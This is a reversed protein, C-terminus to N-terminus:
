VVGSRAKWDALRSKFKDVVVKWDNIRRMNEGIPLGLYMFPFEGIGCGMWRAMDSLEKDEVGIGYLKSKNYNVRLRSVEEFCKLICMLSKANDKNWEGFFITDDAYQLHSVAVKNEGVKVGFGMRRMINLLFKWNISDYAKEFDVKFILGRERRKKLFEMTENAILVGDLIYRGKIFANQVDGVVNGVVKKIREALIKSRGRYGKVHQPGLVGVHGAKMLDTKYYGLSEEGTVGHIGELLAKLKIGERACISEEDEWRKRAELWKGREADNLTRKEAELEWKMADVKYRDIKAKHDGFREKSWTKLSNKVNKLRDRFLCDPRTGKFSGKEGLKIRLSWLKRDLAIVSLNDWQDIFEENMLFRDLKSFKMGDDSVRTFKRGGMPIEVLRAENIFDNFDTMEKINVQSNLRDENKRVVNLDGFLCWTGRWRSMLGALRDWLSAKQRTVHPGYICVLFIDEVKGRWEGKVAIFRDDGIVEKCTFVRTDWIVLIGGSNGVAPLQSYGYGNGGWVDEVWSDDVLNCKTEQLGVIDPQESKIIAKVWGKKGVERGEVDGGETEKERRTGEVQAGEEALAWSVRIIEGVEKMEEISINCRKSNVEEEAAYGFRFVGNSDSIEEYFEKYADSIGKKNEWLGEVGTKRAIKKAKKVSRRGMKKKINEGTESGLGQNFGVNEKGGEFEEENTKKWKKKLRSGESGVSSTPSVERKERRCAPSGQEVEKEEEGSNLGTDEGEGQQMDLNCGACKKNGNENVGGENNIEEMDNGIIKAHRVITDEAMKEKPWVAEGNFTESVKTEEGVPNCDGHEEGNEEDVQMGDKDENEKNGGHLKVEIKSLGQEDCLIPLKSLFCMAKVEGVVSRKLMGCNGDKEDLVISGVERREGGKRNVESSVLGGDGAGKGNRGVGRRDYAVYVKMWEEGLKIKRLQDLFGDTDRVNKLRVFGYKQGNRLRKQVMFMDFGTGYKKFIMWLRGM